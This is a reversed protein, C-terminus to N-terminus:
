TVFTHFVDLLWMCGTDFGSRQLLFTQFGDRQPIWVSRLFQSSLFNSSAEEEEKKEYAPLFTSEWVDDLAEAVAHLRSVQALSRRGIPVTLLALFETRLM